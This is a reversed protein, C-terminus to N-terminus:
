YVKGEKKQQTETANKSGPVILRKISSVRERLSLAPSPPAQPRQQMYPQFFFDIENSSSISHTRFIGNRKETFM